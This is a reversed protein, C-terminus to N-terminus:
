ARRNLFLDRVAIQATKITTTLGTLAFVLSLGADLRLAGLLLPNRPEDALEACIWIVRIGFFLVLLVGISFLFSFGIVYATKPKMNMQVRGLTARMESSM